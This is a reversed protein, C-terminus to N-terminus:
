RKLQLAEPAPTAAGVLGIAPTAAGVKWHRPASSTDGACEVPKALIELFDDWSNKGLADMNRLHQIVQAICDTIVLLDHCCVCCCSFLLYFFKALTASSACSWRWVRLGTYNTTWHSLDVKKLTDRTVGFANILRDHLQSTTIKNEMGKVFSEWTRHLVRM